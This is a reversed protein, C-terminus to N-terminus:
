TSRIVNVGFLASALSIVRSACAPNFLGCITASESSIAKTLKWLRTAVPKRNILDAHIGRNAELRQVPIRVDCGDLKGLGRRFLELRHLDRRGGLLNRVIHARKYMIGLAINGAGHQEISDHIDFTPKGTVVAFKACQTGRDDIAAFEAGDNVGAPM